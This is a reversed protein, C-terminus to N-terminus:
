GAFFLGVIVYVASLCSITKGLGDVDKWSWNLAKSHKANSRGYHAGVRCLAGFVNLIAATVGWVRVAALVSGGAVGFVMILVSALM